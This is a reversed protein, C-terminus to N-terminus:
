SPFRSTKVTPLLCHGDFAFNVIRQKKLLGRWHESGISRGGSPLKIPIFNSGTDYKRATWGGVTDWKAV